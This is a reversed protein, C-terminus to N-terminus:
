KDVKTSGHLASAVLYTSCAANGPISREYIPMNMQRWSAQFWTVLTVFAVEIPFSFYFCSRVSFALTVHTVCPLTTWRAVCGRGASHRAMVCCAGSRPAVIVCM